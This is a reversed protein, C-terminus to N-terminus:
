HATKHPHCSCFLMKWVVIFCVGLFTPTQFQLWPMLVSDCPLCSRKNGLHLVYINATPTSLFCDSKFPQLNIACTRLTKTKKKNTKLRESSHWYFMVWCCIQDTSNKRLIVGAQQNHLKKKNKKPVRNDFHNRSM